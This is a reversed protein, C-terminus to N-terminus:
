GKRKQQQTFKDFAVGAPVAWDRHMDITTKGSPKAEVRGSEPDLRIGPIRTLVRRADNTDIANDPATQILIWFYWSNIAVLRTVCWEAPPAFRIDCLRNSCPLMESNGDQTPLVLDLSISFNIPLLISHDRIAGSYEALTAITKPDANAARASNFSLKLLWRALKSFDYEFSVAADKSTIYQDFCRDYLHAGYADLVSLPGNNCDACVDRITPDGMFFTPGRNTYRVRESVREIISAPWLHERTLRQSHGCYACSASM